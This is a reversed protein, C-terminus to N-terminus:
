LRVCGNIEHGDEGRQAAAKFQKNLFKGSVILECKRIWWEVQTQKMNEKLNGKPEKSFMM